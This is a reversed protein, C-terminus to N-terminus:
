AVEAFSDRFQEDDMVLFDAGDWIIWEGETVPVLEPLVVVSGRTEFIADHREFWSALIERNEPTDTWRAAEVVHACRYMKM